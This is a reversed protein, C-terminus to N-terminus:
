GARVSSLCCKNHSVTAVGHRLTFASWLTSAHGRHKTPLLNNSVYCKRQILNANLSTALYSAGKTSSTPRACDETWDSRALSHGCNWILLLRALGEVALKFKALTLWCIRTGKSSYVRACNMDRHGTRIFSLLVVRLFRQNQQDHFFGIFGTSCRCNQENIQMKEM